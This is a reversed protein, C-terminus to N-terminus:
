WKGYMPNPFVHCNDGWICISPDEPFDGFSDGLYSIVTFAPYDKMRNSKSYIEGRRVVKTDAKNLRLLFIDDDSFLNLKKLNSITPSLNSDMRNSLFIIRVGMLRATDLFKKAGPVITADEQQVWESWSKQSFSQNTKSLMVQYDSNDLITEDLDVVIAYRHNSIKDIELNEEFQYLIKNRKLKNILSNSLKPIKVVFGLEKSDKFKGVCHDKSCSIQSIDFVNDGNKLSQIFASYEIEQFSSDHIEASISQIANFFISETIKDYEKSDRVWRVDNSLTKDSSLLLSAAIIINILFKM